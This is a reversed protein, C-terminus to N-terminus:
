RTGKWSFSFIFRLSFITFILLSVLLPILIALLLFHYLRVNNKKIKQCWVVVFLIPINEIILISILSDFEKWYFLFTLWTFYIILSVIGLSRLFFSTKQKDIKMGLFIFLVGLLGSGLIIWKFVVNLEYFFQTRM